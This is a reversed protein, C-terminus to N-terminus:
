GGAHTKPTFGSVRVRKVGLLEMGVQTVESRHPGSVDRTGCERCGIVVKERAGSGERSEEWFRLEQAM